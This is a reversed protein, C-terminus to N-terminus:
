GVRQFFLHQLLALMLEMGCLCRVIPLRPQNHTGAQVLIKEPVQRSSLIYVYNYDPSVKLDQVYWDTPLAPFIQSAAHTGNGLISSVAFISSTVLNTNDIAAITPGNGLILKGAFAVLPRQVDTIYGYTSPQGPFGVVHEGSGDFNVANVQYDSGIYIQEPFQGFFEISGGNNFVPGGSVISTSQVVSSINQSNSSTTLIKYLVANGGVDGESLAYM